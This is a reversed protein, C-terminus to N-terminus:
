FGLDESALKEIIESQKNTECCTCLFAQHLYERGKSPLVKFTYGEIYMFHKNVTIKADRVKYEINDNHIIMVNHRDQDTGDDIICNLYEKRKSPDTTVSDKVDHRVDWKM